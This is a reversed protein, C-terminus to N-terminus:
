PLWHASLPPVDEWYSIPQSSVRRCHRRLLGELEEQGFWREWAPTKLRGWAEANKDIILIRGGPKVIRAMEAVAAPIDVAHELSEMAFAAQCSESALPLATMTAALRDISSPVFRLMAEALDLAIVQARPNREKLVKAFRGKGSGVDAVRAGNLNGLYDLMLKVHWIRQDIESPYHEDDGASRNFFQKIQEPTFEQLSSNQRRLFRDLFKM